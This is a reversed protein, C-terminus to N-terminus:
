IRGYRDLGGGSLGDLHAEIRLRGVRSRLLWDLFGLYLDAVPDYDVGYFDLLLQNGMRYLNAGGRRLLSVFVLRRVATEGLRM